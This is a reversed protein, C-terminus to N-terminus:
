DKTFLQFTFLSLFLAFKLIEDGTESATIHINSLRMARQIIKKVKELSEPGIISSSTFPGLYNMHVYTSLSKKKQILPQSYPMSQSCPFPFINDVALAMEKLQFASSPISSPADITILLFFLPFYA